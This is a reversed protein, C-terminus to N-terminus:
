KKARFSVYDAMNYQVFDPSFCLREDHENVSELFNPFEDIAPNDKLIVRDLIKCLTKQQKEKQLNNFNLMTNLIDVGEINSGKRPKILSYVSM